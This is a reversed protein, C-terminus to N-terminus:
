GNYAWDDSGKRNFFGESGVAILQRPALKHIYSSMDKAWNVITNGTKDSECRPENALEWTMIAPEDKNVIGTYKNKHNVMHEIHKKYCEIIKKDTYFAEQHPKNFWKAYQPMGGFDPWYNTLVVVVRIGRKKAGAVTYNLREWASNVEAKKYVGPEPQMSHDHSVGEMFGWRYKFSGSGEFCGIYGFKTENPFAYGAMAGMLYAAQEENYSYSAVKDSGADTDIVAFAITDGAEEAKAAADEGAVNVTGEADGAADFGEAPTLANQGLAAEAADWIQRGTFGIKVTGNDESVGYKESAAYASLGSVNGTQIPMVALCLALGAAAARKLVSKKRRMGTEEMKCLPHKM